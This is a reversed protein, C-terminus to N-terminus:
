GTHVSFHTMKIFSLLVLLLTVMGLFNLIIQVLSNSVTGIIRTYAYVFYKGEVTPTFRYNTSNDYCNDTDFEEIDCQVKTVTADAFTTSTGIHAEFAPTLKIGTAKILAM